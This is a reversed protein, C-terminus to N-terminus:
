YTVGPLIMTKTAMFFLFFASLVVVCTIRYAIKEGKPKSFILYAAILYLFLQLMEM